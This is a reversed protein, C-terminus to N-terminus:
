FLIWPFSYLALLLLDLFLDTFKRPIYTTASTEFGARCTDCYVRGQLLFPRSMPRSASILAPLLVCLALMLVSKAM